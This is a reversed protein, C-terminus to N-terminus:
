LLVLLLFAAVSPVPSIAADALHVLVLIVAKSSVGVSAFHFFESVLITLSLFNRMEFQSRLQM